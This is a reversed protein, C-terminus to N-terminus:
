GRPRRVPVIGAHLDDGGTREDIDGPERLVEVIRAHADDIDAPVERALVAHVLVQAPVDGARREDIEVEIERGWGARPRATVRQRRGGLERAHERPDADRAARDEDGVVVDAPRDGRAQPPEQAPEAVRARAHEVAAEGRPDGRSMREHGRRRGEGHRRLEREPRAADAEDVLDRDITEAIIRARLDEVGAGALAELAAALGDVRSGAVDGARDRRREDLVEDRGAAHEERRLRQRRAVALQARELGLLDDAVAARADGRAV